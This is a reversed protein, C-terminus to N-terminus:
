TSCCSTPSSPTSCTSPRPGTARRSRGPLGRARARRHAGRRLVGRGRRRAGDARASDDLRGRPEHRRDARGPRSARAHVDLGRGGAVRGDGRRRPQHRRPARHGPRPRHRRDRPQPGPRGPLLARLHPRPRPGPHRHRPRDRRADVRATPAPRRVEVTSGPDSYKVANDLPQGAGVRAPAPRRAGDPPAVPEDVEIDIGRQEAAPRRVRDVAEAVVLGVRCSRARPAEGLEIRSLELLDDITRGGPAGRRDDGPWAASSRRARGRRSRRPWCRRARRGADEARPQHQGRLRHAHGRAPAARHHGRHARRGRRRRRRVPLPACSWQPPAPRVPRADPTSPEGALARACTRASPRRSSRTPTACASSTSARGRQAAGRRRGDASWWSVRHAARRRRGAAPRM